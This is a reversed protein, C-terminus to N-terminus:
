GHQETRGAADWMLRPDFSMTALMTLVVVAAFALAGAAPTIQALTQLQVLTVLVAVVYVDLMSWRGITELVRYLRTRAHLYSTIRFHVSLLLSLLAVMKVLPVFISAVFVIVALVWSGTSWLYLIGSMITDSQADFLQETEMIPLLNAPVYLAIAPLLFSWARMLSAPKRAHLESECRPCALGSAARARSLLGCTECSILGLEAAAATM